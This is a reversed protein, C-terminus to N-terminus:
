LMALAQRVQLEAAEELAAAEELEAAEEQVAQCRLTAWQAPRHRRLPQAAQAGSHFATPLPLLRCPEVDAPHPKRPHM